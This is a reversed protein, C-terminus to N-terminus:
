EQHIGAKAAVEKVVVLEKRIRDTIQDPGEYALSFGINELKTVIGPDKIAKELAPVLRAMIHKPLKAPAYIAFFIELSVQPFGLQSFTKVDPFEKIPSTAALARIKKARVHESISPWVLSASDVHGGLLATVAPASGGRFPIMNIKVDAAAKLLELNFHSHSGIGIIGTSVKGPNKKAHALFDALTKWPSSENVLFALSNSGVSALPIFDRLPDYPITPTTAVATTVVSSQFTGLTYGDPKSKAVYDGAIVGGAGAKNEVVVDTKLEHRLYDALIRSVADGASGPGVAVIIKIPRVPYAEQAGGSVPLVLGVSLATFLAAVLIRRVNM